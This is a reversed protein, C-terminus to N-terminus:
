MVRRGRSEGAEVSEGGQRTGWGKFCAGKPSCPGPTATGTRPSKYGHQRKARPRAITTVSRSTRPFLVAPRRYTTQTPCKRCDTTILGPRQSRNTNADTQARERHADAAHIPFPISAARWSCQFPSTKAQAIEQCAQSRHSGRQPRNSPARRGKGRLAWSQREAPQPIPRPHDNTFGRTAPATYLLHRRGLPKARQRRKHRCSAFRPNPWLKWEHVSSLPLAPPKGARRRVVHRLSEFRTPPRKM